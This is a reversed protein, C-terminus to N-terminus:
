RSILTALPRETHLHFYGTAYIVNPAQLLVLADLKRRELESQIQGIKRRYWAETLRDRNPANAQTVQAHLAVAQVRGTCMAGTGVVVATRLFNRRSTSM